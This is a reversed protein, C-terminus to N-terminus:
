DGNPHWKIGADLMTEIASMYEQRTIRRGFVPDGKAKYCPYYQEMVNVYSNLSVERAIFQAIEKTGAQGDPLVLHRILLGRKAIGNRIVLDGVQRHMEIIAERAKQFYDPADAWKMSVSCDAFKLDPMYIDVIGELLRIAELSEYGGCNYVIPIVLGREAAYVLSRLIMPMQHTPTVLNINHCRRRQLDIMVDSLAEETMLTGEGEHSIEWNQCFKCGLNCNGFFITGSGYHGTIPREEGMHPGWSSVFLKDGTNCYGKEGATRDVGCVRPCLNCAKLMAEAKDARKALEHITLNKYSPYPNM